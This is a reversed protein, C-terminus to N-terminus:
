LVAAVAPASRRLEGALDLYEAVLPRPDPLPVLRELPHHMQHTVDMLGQVGDVTTVAASVSNM